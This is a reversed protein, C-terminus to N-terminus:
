NRLIGQANRVVRRAESFNREKVLDEAQDMAARHQLTIRQTIIRRQKIEEAILSRQEPSATSLYRRAQAQLQQAEINDPM